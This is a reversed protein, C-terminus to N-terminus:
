KENDILNASAPLFNQRCKKYFIQISESIQADVNKVRDHSQQTIGSSQHERRKPLNAEKSDTQTQTNTNKHMGEVLSPPACEDQANDAAYHDTNNNKRGRLYYRTERHNHQYKKEPQDTSLCPSQQLEPKDNWSDTRAKNVHHFNFHKNHTYGHHNNRSNQVSSYHKYRARDTMGPQTNYQHTEKNHATNYNNEKLFGNGRDSERHSAAIARMQYPHRLKKRFQSRSHNDADDFQDNTQRNDSNNYEAKGNFLPYEPKITMIIDKYFM